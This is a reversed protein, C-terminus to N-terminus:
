EATAIIKNQHEIFAQSRKMSETLEADLAKIIEEDKKVKEENKQEAISTEQYQEAKMADMGKYKELTELTQTLLAKTEMETHDEKKKFEEFKESLEDKEKLSSKLKKNLDNEEKQLQLKTKSLNAEAQDEQQKM